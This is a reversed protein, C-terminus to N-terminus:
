KDRIHASLQGAPSPRYRNTRKRSIDHSISMGSVRVKMYSVGGSSKYFVFDDAARARHVPSRAMCSGLMIRTPATDSAFIVTGDGTGAYGLPQDQVPVLASRPVHREGGRAHADRRFCSGRSQRREREIQVCLLQLPGRM